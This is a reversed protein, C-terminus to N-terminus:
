SKEFRKFFLFRKKFILVDFKIPNRNVKIIDYSKCLNVKKEFLFSDKYNKAVM